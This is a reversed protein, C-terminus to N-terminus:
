GWHPLWAENALVIPRELVTWGGDMVGVLILSMAVQAWGQGHLGLGWRMGPQRARREKGKGHYYSSM